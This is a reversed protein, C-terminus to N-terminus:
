YLSYRCGFGNLKVSTAGSFNSGNITVLTGPAATSPNFGRLVLLLPQM